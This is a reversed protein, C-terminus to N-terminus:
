KTAKPEKTKIPKEKKVRSSAKAETKKTAKEQKKATKVEVKVQKKASKEEVKKQKKAKQELEKEITEFKRTNKGEGWLKDLGYYERVDKTMIHVVFDYYDLLVWETQINNDQSYVEYGHSHLVEAVKTGCARGQVNSTSTAIVFYKAISNQRSLDIVVINDAKMDKLSTCAEVVADFIEM